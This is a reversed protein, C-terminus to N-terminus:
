RAAALLASIESNRSVGLRRHVAAIHNRATAPAFGLVDAIERYSAGGACLSAVERERARLEDAVVRERILLLSVDHGHRVTLVVKQGTFRGSDPGSLLARVPDPLLPGHWGPWECRFLVLFGEQAASVVGHYSAAAHNALGAAAAIERELARIQNESWCRLLHGFAAEMFQRAPEDFPPATDSGLLVIGTAIGLEADFFATSMIHKVGYRAMQVQMIEPDAAGISYAVSTGPTSLVHLLRPDASAGAEVEAIASEPLGVMMVERFALGTGIAASGWIAAAFDIHRQLAKLAAQRFDAPAARDTCDALETMFASFNLIEGDRM